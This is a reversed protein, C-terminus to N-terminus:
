ECEPDETDPASDIVTLFRRYAFYATSGPEYHECSGPDVLRSRWVATEPIWELVEATCWSNGSEWRVTKGILDMPTGSAPPTAASSSTM